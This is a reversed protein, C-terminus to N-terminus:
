LKNNLLPSGIPLGKILNSKLLCMEVKSILREYITDILFM